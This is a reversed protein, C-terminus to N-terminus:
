CLKVDLVISAAANVIQTQKNQRATKLTEQVCGPRSESAPLCDVFVHISSSCSLKALQM